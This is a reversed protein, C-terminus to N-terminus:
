RKASSKKKATKRTSTTGKTAVSEVVDAGAVLMEGAKQLASGVTRARKSATKATKAAKAPLKRAGKALSAARSSTKKKAAPKPAASARTKKRGRKASPM